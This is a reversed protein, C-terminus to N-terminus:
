SDSTSELQDMGGSSPENSQRPVVREARAGPLREYSGAMDGDESAKRVKNSEREAKCRQMAEEVAKQLRGRNEMDRGAARKLAKEHETAFQRNVMDEDQLHSSHSILEDISASVDPIPSPLPNPIPLPSPSPADTLDNHQNSWRKSSSAKAAASRDKQHFSYPNHEAWDHISYVGTETLRDVFGIRCLAGLFKRASGDFRSAKAIDAATMGYLTGEPRHRRVYGWLTFLAVVGEFGLEAILRNFKPHDRWSADVRFDDKM